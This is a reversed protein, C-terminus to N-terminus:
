LECDIREAYFMSLMGLVRSKSVDSSFNTVSKWDKRMGLGVCVEFLKDM